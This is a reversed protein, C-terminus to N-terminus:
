THYYLLALLLSVEHLGSKCNSGELPLIFIGLKLYLQHNDQFSHQLVCGRAIEGFLICYKRLGARWNTTLASQWRDTVDNLFATHKIRQNQPPTPHVIIWFPFPFLLSYDSGSIFCIVADHSDALYSNDADIMKLMIRIRFEAFVWRDM